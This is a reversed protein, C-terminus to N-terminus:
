SVSEIIHDLMKSFPIGSAKAAKPLLSNETLGPITNLELVYLVGDDGAIMDTRSMGSCGLIKHVELATNQIAAVSQKRMNRPPTIEHAWNKTYKSRYDFIEGKVPIIETPQLATLKGGIDLVGCTIERGAIFRQVMVDRDFGFAFDVAKILSKEIDGIEKVLSVGISSGRANPKVVAPLGISNIIVSILERPRKHWDLSNVTIFDPVALGRDHLLRLSFSKNMALASSLSGSGTFPIGAASLLGQITGDEGYEGHLALFALGIKKHRLQLAAEPESLPQTKKGKFLWYGRKDILVPEVSYKKADLNKLVMKGSALSVEHEASPGGMLVAILKKRAKM